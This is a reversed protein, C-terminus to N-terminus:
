LKRFIVGFHYPGPEFYKVEEYGFNPVQSRLDDVKIRDTLPPGFPIVAQNWDIVLLNGGPKILRTVEKFIDGHRKSQFLINVLLGHDISNEPIQTAGYMELDSWVTKINYLGQLRAKGDVSSLAGKVIDVAYVQGSDGVLKAAALTFFGSGGCGFSAVIHGSVVRLHEKLIVPANILESGGTIRQEPM